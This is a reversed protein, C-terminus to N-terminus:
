INYSRSCLFLCNRVLDKNWIRTLVQWSRALVKNLDYFINFCPKILIKLKIQHLTLVILDHLDQKAIIKYLSINHM